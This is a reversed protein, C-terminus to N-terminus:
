FINKLHHQCFMIINTYYLFDATRFTDLRVKIRTYNL